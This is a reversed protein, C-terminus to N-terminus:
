PRDFVHDLTWEELRRRGLKIRLGKKGMAHQGSIMAFVELSGAAVCVECVELLSLNSDDITM